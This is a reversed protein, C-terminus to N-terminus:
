ENITRVALSVVTDVEYHVLVIEDDDLRCLNLFSVRSIINSGVAAGISSLLKITVSVPKGLGDYNTVASAVKVNLVGAASKIQLRRYTNQLWIDAYDLNSTVIETASLAPVESLPIDDRYTSMLFPNQRGVVDNAFTRWYDLDTPRHALFERRGSVFPIPWTVKPQPPAVGNDLWDVDQNFNEEVGENALTQKNLLTLGDFTSLVAVSGPRLVERPSVGELTLSFSGSISMMQLNISPATRFSPAPSVYWHAPVDIELPVTLTAGDAEVQDIVLLITTDLQPNFLAIAEGDRMDTYVPDFFLKTAGVSAAATLKTSYHYAPYSFSQSVYKLMMRYVDRRDADNLMLASFSMKPRPDRRLASRQERSVDATNVVTKYQWIETVPVEPVLPSPLPTPPAEYLSLVPVQSVKTGQVPLNVVLIPVQTVRAEIIAIYEFGDVLTIDTTPREVTVDVFGDPGAPTVCTITSDNVVVVSTAPVGGFTVGTAGTFGGGSITVATGGDDPGDDPTISSILEPVNLGFSVAVTHNWGGISSELVAITHGTIGVPTGNGLTFAHNAELSPSPYDGARARHASSALFYSLAFIAGGAVVDITGSNSVSSVFSDDPVNSTLSFVEWVAAVWRTKTQATTVVVDGSTGAPLDVLYFAINSSNGGSAVQQGIQYPTASVGGITVGTAYGVNGSSSGLFLGLLIKRDAAPNAWAFGSLTVGLGDVQSNKTDIYNYSFPM